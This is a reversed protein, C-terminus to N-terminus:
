VEVHKWYKGHRIRYIVMKDVGFRRAFEKGSIDNRDKIERVQEETLKHRGHNEGIASRGRKVRDRVNDAHTGSKLHFPNICSPNDCTHRIVKGDISVENFIRYMERHIFNRTGNSGFYHYGKKDPKRDQCTICGCALFLKKLEQWHETEYNEQDQEIPLTITKATM